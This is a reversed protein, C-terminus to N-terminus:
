PCFDEIWLCHLWRILKENKSDASLLKGYLNVYISPVGIFSYHEGVIVIVDNVM